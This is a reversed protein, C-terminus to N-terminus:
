PTLSKPPVDLSQIALGEIELSQPAELPLVGFRVRRGDVFFESRGPRWEITYSHWAGLHLDLPEEKALILRQGAGVVFRRLIPLRSLPFGILMAPMLLIWPISCMRLAAAKWGHGPLGPVLRLDHPPSGYFFWVAQPPAPIRRAAGAQGLNLAFPDNWFGFGLTGRPNLISTRARLRMRVPPRWPLRGRPCSRYDDIQALAYGKSAPPLQLSWSDPGVRRVAGGGSACAEAQWGENDMHRNYTKALAYAILYLGEVGDPSHNHLDGPVPKGAEADDLSALDRDHRVGVTRRDPQGLQLQAGIDDGDTMVRGAVVMHLADLDGFPTLTARRTIVPGPSYSIPPTKMVPTRM